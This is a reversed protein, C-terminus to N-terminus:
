MENKLFEEVEDVTFLVPIGLNAAHEAEKTAGNSNEWNPVLAVADSVELWAISNKFYDEYEYGGHWLGQLFDNGPVFVAAGFHRVIEAYAIMDHLNQIYGCADRDTLKGAIYIRKM